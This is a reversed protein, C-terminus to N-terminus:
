KSSLCALIDETTKQVNNWEFYKVNYQDILWQPLNYYFEATKKVFAEKEFEDELGVRLRRRRILEEVPVRVIATLDPVLGNYKNLAKLWEMDVGLALGEYM